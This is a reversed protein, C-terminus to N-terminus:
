HPIPGAALLQNVCGQVAVDDPIDGEAALTDLIASGAIFEVRTSTLASSLMKVSSNEDLRLFTGPTLMLEVRGKQTKLVSGDKLLPFTAAKRELAVGDVMVAGEMYHIVGSQASVVEQASGIPCFLTLSAFLILSGGWRM